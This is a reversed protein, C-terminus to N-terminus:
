TDSIQDPIVYPVTVLLLATTMYAVLVNGYIEHILVYNINIYM